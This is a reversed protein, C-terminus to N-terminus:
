CCKDVFILSRGFPVAQIAFGTLSGFRRQAWTALAMGAPSPARTFCCVRGGGSARIARQSGNRTTLLCTRGLGLVPPLIRLWRASPPAVARCGRKRDWRRLALLPHSPLSVSNPQSPYTPALSYYFRPHLLTCPWQITRISHPHSAKSILSPTTKHSMTIWTATAPSRSRSPGFAWIIIMM